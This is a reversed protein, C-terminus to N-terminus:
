SMVGGRSKMTRSSFLCLPLSAFISASIQRPASPHRRHFDDVIAQANVLNSAPEWTDEAASYGKWSVLYELKKTPQGRKKRGPIGVLRSDLVDQVEYELHDELEVPEPPPPLAGNVDNGKWPSLRDVHFIPHLRSLSPPLALHYDLDGIKQLVKFPGLQLDALKPTRRKLAINKSSLWVYDGVAFSHASRKGREYAEKQHSKEVRLAAEVDERVDEM